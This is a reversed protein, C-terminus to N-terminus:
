YGSFSNTLNASSKMACGGGDEDGKEKPEVEEAEEADELLGEEGILSLMGITLYSLEM